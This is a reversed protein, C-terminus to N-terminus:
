PKLQKASHRKRCSMHVLAKLAICNCVRASRTDTFVFASLRPHINHPMNNLSAPLSVLPRLASTRIGLSSIKSSALSNLQNWAFSRILLSTHYVSPFWFQKKNHSMFWWIILLQWHRILMHDIVLVAIALLQWQSSCRDSTTYCCILFAYWHCLLAFSSGDM